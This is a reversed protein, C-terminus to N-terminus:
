IIAYFKQLIFHKTKYTSLVAIPNKQQKPLLYQPFLFDILSPPYILSLLKKYIQLPLIITISLIIKILGITILHPYQKNNIIIYGINANPHTNILMESFTM